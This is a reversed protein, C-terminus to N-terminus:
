TGLIEINWYHFYINATIKSVDSVISSLWLKPKTKIKNKLKLLDRGLVVPIVM